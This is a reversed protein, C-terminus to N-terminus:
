QGLYGATNGIKFIQKQDHRQPSAGIANRQLNVELGTLELHANMEETM